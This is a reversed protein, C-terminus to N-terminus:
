GDKSTARLRRRTMEQNDSSQQVELVIEESMGLLFFLLTLSLLAQSKKLFKEPLVM